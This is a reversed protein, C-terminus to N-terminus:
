VSVFTKFERSRYRELSQSLAGLTAAALEGLGALEVIHKAVRLTGADERDVLRLEQLVGHYAANMTALVEPEFACGQATILRVIQCVDPERRGVMEAAAVDVTKL